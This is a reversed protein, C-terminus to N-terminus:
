FNGYVMKLFRCVFLLLILVESCFLKGLLKQRVELVTVWKEASVSLNQFSQDQMLKLSSIVFKSVGFIESTRCLGGLNTAKSILSAVLILGDETCRKKKVQIEEAFDSFEPMPLYKWPTIKKQFVNSANTFTAQETRKASDVPGEGITEEGM